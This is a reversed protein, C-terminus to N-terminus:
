STHRLEVGPGRHRGPQSGLFIVPAPNSGRGSDNRITNLRGATGPHRWKRSRIRPPRGSGPVQHLVDPEFFQREPLHRVYERGANRQTVNEPADAAQEVAATIPAGAIQWPSNAERRVVRKVRWSERDM